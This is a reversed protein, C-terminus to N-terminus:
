DIGYLQGVVKSTLVMAAANASNLQKMRLGDLFLAWQLGAVAFPETPGHRPDVVVEFVDTRSRGKLDIRGAGSIDVNMTASEYEFSISSAVSDLYSFKVFLEVRDNSRLTVEFVAEVHVDFGGHMLVNKTILAVDSAGLIELASDIYHVGMEMTIGGGSLGPDGMYGGRTMIRGLGGFQIRCTKPPGFAGSLSLQKATQVSGSVRRILGVAVEWDAYPATTALHESLSKAFPKEVYISPRKGQLAQLQQYIQPRAGWPIAILLVDVTPLLSLNGCYEVPEVRNAAAVENALASDKDAIWKVAVDPLSKLVPLHLQRVIAGCGIVGVSRMM